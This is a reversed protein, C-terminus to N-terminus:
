PIRSFVSITKFETNEELNANRGFDEYKVHLFDVLKMRSLYHNENKILARIKKEVFNKKLFIAENFKESQSHASGAGIRKQRLRMIEHSVVQELKNQRTLVIFTDFESFIYRSTANSLHPMMARFGVVNEARSALAARIRSEASIVTGAKTMAFAHRLLRKKKLFNPIEADYFGGIGLILEGFCYMNPHSSLAQELRVSGSRQSSLVVFKKM